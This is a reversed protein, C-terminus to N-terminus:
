APWNAGDIFGAEHAFAEDVLDSGVFFAWKVQM